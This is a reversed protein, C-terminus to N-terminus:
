RASALPLAEIHADIARGVRETMPLERKAAPWEDRFRGVTDRVVSLVPHEPLRAKGAFHTFAAITLDTFRKSRVLNLAMREDPIYAITSLLDYAPALMANRGDPYIMSWNKLHMDANGILANFVLRRVFEVVGSEGAEAWVVEAISRYNGRAYKREPYLGFIQAFDEAHVRAGGPARDFRRVALAKGQVTGIGEPLGTVADLDVLRVEPVDLGLRAALRMVSFENEPVGEFRASPLKVIWSGGVGQAPITLGGSAEMVASLKIQVGALSFRLAGGADDHTSRREDHGGHALPPPWPEEVDSEVVVAGPLDKGLVQLLFFERRGKVGARAALYDRLHGEPLLNSFFPPVRVRTPAQEAVIGGFRDKFSLSLVPREPDDLYGDDFAFLTRDGPLLTLTGAARRGLRVRLTTIEPM